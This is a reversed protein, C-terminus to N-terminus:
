MFVATEAARRALDEKNGLRAVVEQVAEGEMSNTAGEMLEVVIADLAARNRQLLEKCRAYSGNLMDEMASDVM